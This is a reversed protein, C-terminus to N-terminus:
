QIPSRRQRGAPAERHHLDGAQRVVSVGRHNRGNPVRGADPAVDRRRGTDLLQAVLNLAAPM